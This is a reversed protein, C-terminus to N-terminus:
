TKVLLAVREGLLQWQTRVCWGCVLPPSTRWITRSTGTMKSAAAHVLPLGTGAPFGAADGEAEDEALAGFVAAGLM